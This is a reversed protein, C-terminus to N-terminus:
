SGLEDVMRNAKARAQSALMQKQTNTLKPTHEIKEALNHLDVPDTKQDIAKKIIAVFDEPGSSKLEKIPPKVTVTEKPAEIQAVSGGKVFKDIMRVKLEVPILGAIANRIAKSTAKEVVFTDQYSGSHSRKNYTEFKVGWNGAGSIHDFAYCRVMVGKEVNLTQEEVFMRSHDLTIKM